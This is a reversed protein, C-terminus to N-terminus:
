RPPHSQESTVRKLASLTAAIAPVADVGPHRYAVIARDELEPFGRCAVGRTPFAEYAAEPLITLALGHAAFAQAVMHDNARQPIVPVFGATRAAEHLHRECHVCGTVWNEGALDAFTVGPRGILPHDARGIVCYRERGIDMPVFAGVDPDPDHSFRFVLALDIEGNRLMALAPDPDATILNVEIDPGLLALTGPILSAMASWYAGLRVTGRRLQTFEEIRTQAAALQAAIADAHDLLARGVETPEVGHSHRLLVPSGIQRELDRLHQSIAQQTWGLGRAGASISGARVVARLFLLRNPDLLM